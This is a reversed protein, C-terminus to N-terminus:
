RGEVVYIPGDAGVAGSASELALVVVQEDVALPDRYSVRVDSAEPRPELLLPWVTDSAIAYAHIGVQSEYWVIGHAFDWGGDTPVHVRGFTENLPEGAAEIRDDLTVTSGSGRDFAFLGEATSFVVTTADLAAARAETTNGLWRARLEDPEVLWIRGSEIVLLAGGRAHLGQLVEPAMGLEELTLVPEGDRLLVTESADEIMIWWNSGDVAYPWWNADLPRPLSLTEVVAAPEGAAYVQYEVTDTSPEAHVVLEGSAAANYDDGTGISFSYDLRASGDPRARHLTPDFSRFELWYVWGDAAFPEDAIEGLFEDRHQELEAALANYEDIDAQPDGVDGADGESPLDLGALGCGAAMAWTCCAIGSRIM